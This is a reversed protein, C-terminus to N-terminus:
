SGDEERRQSDAPRADRNSPVEGRLGRVRACRDDGTSQAGARRGPAAEWIWSRRAVARGRAEVIERVRDAMEHLDAGNEELALELVTEATLEFMESELMEVTIPAFIEDLRQLADEARAVEVLEVACRVSDSEYEVAELQGAAEAEARAAEWDEVARRWREEARPLPLRLDDFNRAWAAEADALESPAM